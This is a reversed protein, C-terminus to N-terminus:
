AALRAIQTLAFPRRSRSMLGRACCTAVIARLSLGSARLNRVEQIVAQESEDKVLHIGDTELRYGYPLAGVREGRSKKVALAATTRARIVGREYAAFVDVIGRMLGGEPGTGDSAGDATAIAAGVRGAAQEVLAAIVTDRAIRDRKAAVLLGASHEPLAGLAALLGPRKEIPTGGSIGQDEFTAVIQVGHSTAWRAIADRQAQPSLSQEETSVRVYGIAISPNGTIRRKGMSVLTYWPSENDVTTTCLGFPKHVPNATDALTSSWAPPPIYRNANDSHPYRGRQGHVAVLRHM